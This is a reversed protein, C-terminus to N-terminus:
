GSELGQLLLPNPVRGIFDDPALNDAVWKTVGNFDKVVVRSNEPGRFYIEKLDDTLRLPNPLAKTLNANAYAVKPSVTGAQYFYASDYPALAPVELPPDFEVTFTDGSKVGSGRLWVVAPVGIGLMELFKRRKM